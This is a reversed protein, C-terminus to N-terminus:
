EEQNESSPADSDKLPKVLHLQPKLKVADLFHEPIVGLNVLGTLVVRTSLNASLIISNLIMKSYIQEETMDATTGDLLQEQILDKNKDFTNSIETSFLQCLENTTM